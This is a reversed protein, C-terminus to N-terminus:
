KAYLLNDNEPTSAINLACEKGIKYNSILLIMQKTQVYIYDNRKTSSNKKASYYVM